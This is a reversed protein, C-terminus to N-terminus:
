LGLRRDAAVWVSSGLLKTLHAVLHVLGFVSAPITAAHRGSRSGKVVLPPRLLRAGRSTPAPRVRPTVVLGAFATTLRTSGRTAPDAANRIGFLIACDAGEEIGRDFSASPRHGRRLRGLGGCCGANHCDSDHPRRDEIRM